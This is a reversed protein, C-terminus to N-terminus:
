IVLWLAFVTAACTICTVRAAKPGLRRGFGFAVRGVFVAAVLAMAIKRADIHM